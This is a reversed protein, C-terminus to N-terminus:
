SSMKDLAGKKPANSLSWNALSLVLLTTIKGSSYTYRNMEGRKVIYLMILLLCLSGSIRDQM